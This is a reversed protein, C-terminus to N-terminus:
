SLCHAYRNPARYYWYAKKEGTFLIQLMLKRFVNSSCSPFSFTITWYSSRSVQTFPSQRIWSSTSEPKSTSCTKRASGALPDARLLCPPSLLSHLSCQTETDYSSICCSIEVSFKTICIRPSLFQSLHFPHARSIERGGDKKCNKILDSSTCMVICYASLLWTWLDEDWVCSVIWHPEIM